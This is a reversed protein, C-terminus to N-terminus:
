CIYLGNSNSCFEMFKILWARDVSYNKHQEEPNRYFVGDDPDDTISGSLLFRQSTRIRPLIHQEFHSEILKSETADLEGIGDSLLDLRDDDFLGLSRILEVTPRWQWWSAFLVQERDYLHSIVVGM